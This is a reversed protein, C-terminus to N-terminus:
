ITRYDRIPMRPGRRPPMPATRALLMCARHRHGAYPELLELMRADDAREEGALAYAVMRPLHFDGVSVADPDGLARQRVEAATWVGIGPVAQLRRDAEHAALDVIAELRSALRAARVVTGSRDPGVGARHWEWSPLMALRGPEPVVRMGDPAPGPAPDGFRTLLCRWGRWAEQGTVKQELVAPVLAEMVLGTRGILLGAHRRHAWALVPHEPQFGAQDDDAGLWRPLAELVWEAGPGWAQAAVEGDVPRVTVRVTAAGTGTRCTRWVSGDPMIRHAPDRHGRRHAALTGAVDLPRGPRWVRVYARM